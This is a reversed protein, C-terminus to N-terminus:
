ADRCNDRQVEAWTSALNSPATATRGGIDRSALLRDTERSFHDYIDSVTRLSSNLNLVFRTFEVCNSETFNFPSMAGYMRMFRLASSVLQFDTYCTECLLEYDPAFDQPPAFGIVCKGFQMDLLSGDSLRIGVHTINHHTLGHYLQYGQYLRSLCNDPRYFFLTVLNTAM